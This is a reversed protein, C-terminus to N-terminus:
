KRRVAGNCRKYTDRNVGMINEWEKTTHKEKVKIANLKKIAEPTLGDKLKM